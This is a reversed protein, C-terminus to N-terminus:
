VTAVEEPAVYREWFVTGRTEHPEVEFTRECAKNSGRPEGTGHEDILLLLSPAENMITNLFERERERAAAEEHRAPIDIGGAIIGRTQGHEDPLPASRWFVVRKEGRRNVFTNEYEVAPHVPAAPEFRAIVDAREWEDTCVSWFRA